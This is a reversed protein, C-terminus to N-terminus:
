NELISEIVVAVASLENNIKCEDSVHKDKRYLLRNTGEPTRDSFIFKGRIKVPKDLYQDLDITTEGSVFFEGGDKESYITYVCDNISVIYNTAEDVTYPPTDSRMFVLFLLVIVAFISTFVIFFISKKM